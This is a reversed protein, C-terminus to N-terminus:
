EEANETRSDTGIEFIATYLGARLTQSYSELDPGGPIEGYFQGAEIGAGCLAGAGIMTMYKPIDTEFHEDVGSYHYGLEAALSSAMGAGVHGWFDGLEPSGELYQDVAAYSAAVASAALLGVRTVDERGRTGDMFSKLRREDELVDEDLNSM